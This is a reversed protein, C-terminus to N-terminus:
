ASERQNTPLRQDWTPCLTGQEGTMYSRPLPWRFTYATTVSDPLLPVPVVAMCQYAEDKRVVIRGAADPPVNLFRCTKCSRM